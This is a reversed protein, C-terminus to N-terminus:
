IGQNLPNVIRGLLTFAKTTGEFLVLTFPQNFNVEMPEEDNRTDAKYKEHDAGSDELKFHIINIIKGINIEKNNLKGFHANKGLLTPLGMKTVLDKADYFREIELKPITLQIHRSVLGDMWSLAQWDKNTFSSEMNELTNGNTPQVLLLFDNESVYIKLVIQNTIKDDKFQFEGSVSIMPVLIQKNPEIWFQKPEPLLNSKSVKGKYYIHSVYMLNSTEDVVSLGSRLKNPLQADLFEHISNVANASNTFDVARVYLNDSTPELDHIFKESLPFNPSVFICVTKKMVFNGDESVLFSDINKLKSIVKLSNVQSTCSTSESPNEFGLLRQLSVATEGSAGLYFSLISWYFNTFSILMTDRSHIEKWAQFARFGLANILSTLYSESSGLHHTAQNTKVKISHEEHKMKSEIPIPIVMKGITHNEMEIQECETQNYAFLNFPHVYVRNCTSVVICLCLSLLFIKLDM